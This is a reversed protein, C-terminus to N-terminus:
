LEFSHLCIGHIRKSNEFTLDTNAIYEPLYAAYDRITWLNPDYGNKYVRSIFETRPWTGNSYAFLELKQSHDFIKHVIEWGGGNEIAPWNAGMMTKMYKRSHCISILNANQIDKVGDRYVFEDWFLMMDKKRKTSMYQLYPKSLRSKHFGSTDGRFSLIVRKELEHDEKPGYLSLLVPYQNHELLGYQLKPYSGNQFYNFEQNKIQFAYGMSEPNSSEPCDYFRKQDAPTLRITSEMFKNQNQFSSLKQESICNSLIWLLGFLFFSMFHPM